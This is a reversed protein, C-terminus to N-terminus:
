AVALLQIGRLEALLQDRAAQWGFRQAHVAPITNVFLEDLSEMIQARWTALLVETKADGDAVAYGRSAQALARPLQGHWQRLVDAMELGELESVVFM